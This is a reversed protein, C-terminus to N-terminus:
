EGVCRISAFTARNQNGYLFPTANEAKRIGAVAPPMSAGVGNATWFWASDAPGTLVNATASTSTSRGCYPFFLEGNSLNIVRGATTGITKNEISMAAEILANWQDNTPITYGEPCPNKDAVPWPTVTGVFGASAITSGAPNPVPVGAVTPITWGVNNGWQYLMGPVEPASAFTNPADVNFLAWKTTGVMIFEPPPLLYFSATLTVVQDPMPFSAEMETKNDGLEVGGWEVFGYGEEPIAEITVNADVEVEAGSEIASGDVKVTVTGEGEYTTTFNFAHRKKSFEATLTVAEAPMKFTAELETKDAGLDIGGWEVFTYNTDPTATITVDTDIDVMDGPAVPAGGVTAVITGGDNILSYTLSYATPASQAFSATISIDNAPM